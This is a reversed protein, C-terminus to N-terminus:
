LAVRLRIVGLVALFDRALTLSPHITFQLNPTVTTHQTLQLRYLGEFTMQNRLTPDTPGSWSAAMGLFDSGRVRLGVGGAVIFRVNAADGESYGARLFPTWRNAMVTSASFTLGWSEEVGAEARPDQHWVNVHINETPHIGTGLRLGTELWTYYERDEFFTDVGLSTPSGNADHLGGSAYWNGILGATAAV